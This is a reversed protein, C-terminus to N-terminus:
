LASGKRLFLTYNMNNVVKDLGKMDYKVISKAFIFIIIRVAFPHNLNKCSHNFLPM